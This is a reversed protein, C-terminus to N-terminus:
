ERPTGRTPRSATTDPAPQAPLAAPTPTPDPSTPDPTPEVPADTALEDIDITWAGNEADSEITFYVGGDAPQWSLRENVDGSEIIPRDSEGGATQITVYFLGDGKHQFRASVADGRYVLFADGKGGVIGDTIEEVETKELTLSWDGDAEVWLELVGNGPLVPVRDDMRIYSILDPWERDADPDNADDVNSASLVIRDDETSGPGLSAIYPDQQHEELPIRIVGNGTGSWTDGDRDEFVTPDAERWPYEAEGLIGFGNDGIGVNLYTNYAIGALILAGVVWVVASFSRIRQRAGSSATIEGSSVNGNRGAHAACFGLSTPAPASGRSNPHAGSGM